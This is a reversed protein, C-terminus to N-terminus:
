CNLDCIGIRRQPLQKNVVREEKETVPQKWLGAVGPNSQLIV